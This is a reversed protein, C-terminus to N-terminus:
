MPSFIGCGTGARTAKGVAPVTCKGARIAACITAKSVGNCDCIQRSDPLDALSAEQTKTGGAFFLELRRAPAPTGALFLRQVEDAPGLDGLLCASAVVGDRVM